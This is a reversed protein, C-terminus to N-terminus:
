MVDQSATVLSTLYQLIDSIFINLSLSSSIFMSIGFHIEYDLEEAM